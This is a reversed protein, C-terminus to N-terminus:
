EIVKSAGSYGAIGIFDKETMNAVSVAVLFSCDGDSEKSM